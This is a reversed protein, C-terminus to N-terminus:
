VILMMGVNRAFGTKLIKYQWLIKRRQLWGKVYLSAFAELIQLHSESLRNQHIELFAQAQMVNQYFRKRIAKAGSRALDGLYRVGYPQAGYYNRDHQRYLVTPQELYIIRGFAAATLSVWHDHMVADSPIPTCLKALARNFLMTCGSPINQVLLRSFSVSRPNLGQYRFCSNHLRNLNRDVVQKDTFLLRPFDMEREETDQRFRAMSKSIKDPLWVDDQDCFMIYPASSEALLSSISQIPSNRTESYFGRITQPFQKAYDRIIEPTGDDSGGDRILLRWGPQDQLRISEITQALFSGANYAPLLIDIM